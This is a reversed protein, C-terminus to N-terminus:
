IQQPILLEVQTGENMKSFIKLGHGYKLLLRSQINQLAGKNEFLHSLQEESMGIGDDEIKIYLNNEINKIIIRIIGGDNKNMVGHFVANEVVPQICLIPVIGYIGEDINYEIQLREDFREKEISLYAKVINIEDQISTMGNTVNFNFAGRLYESFDLLLGKAKQPNRTTITSIASLANYIFHPKIQAQMFALDSEALKEFLMEKEIHLNRFRIALLMSQAITFLALGVALLYGIGMIQNFFLMDNVAGIAIFIMGFFFIKADKQGKMM